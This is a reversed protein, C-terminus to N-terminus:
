RFVLFQNTSYTFERDGEAEETNEITLEDEGEADEAEEDEVM